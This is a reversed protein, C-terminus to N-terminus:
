RSNKLATKKSSDVGLVCNASRLIQSIYNMNENKQIHM